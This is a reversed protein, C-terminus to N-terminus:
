TQSTQFSWSVLNHCQKTRTGYGHTCTGCLPSTLPLCGLPHGFCQSLHGWVTAICFRPTCLISHGALLRSRFRMWCKHSWGPTSDVCGRFSVFPQTIPQYHNFFPIGDWLLTHDVLILPLLLSTWRGNVLWNMMGILCFEVTQSFGLLWYSPM